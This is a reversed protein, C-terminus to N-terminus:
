DDSGAIQAVPITSCRERLFRRCKEYHRGAESLIKSSVDITEHDDFEPVLVKGARIRTSSDGRGAMGTDPFITYESNLQTRLNLWTKLGSLVTQTNQIIDESHIFIIPATARSVYSQINELRLKYYESVWFPNSFDSNGRTRGLKILSNFTPKPERLLIVLRVDSRRVIKDSLVHENHLVKDLLYGDSARMTELYVYYRLRILDINDLYSCHRERHGIIQPHSGLIHSLLSSYSRMHSIIFLYQTRSIFVQPCRFLLTILRALTSVKM